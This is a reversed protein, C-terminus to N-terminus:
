ARIKEQENALTPFSISHVEALASFLYERGTQLERCLFRTRRKEGKQFFRNNHTKFTANAPLQELLVSDTVPDYKKLVRMLTHDSCSSAAPNEMYRTLAQTIDSPFLSLNLYPRMLGKFEQKWEQGHPAVKNRHQNWNTLHAMEHLLTILFAYKNLDRNVSIRHNLSKGPPRYDGYKTMRARKIKLKFDLRIICEAITHVAPEPIYKQLISKNRDSQLTL